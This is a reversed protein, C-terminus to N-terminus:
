FHIGLARDRAIRSGHVAGASRLSDYSPFFEDTVNFSYYTNEIHFERLLEGIVRLSKIHSIEGRIQSAISVAPQILARVTERDMIVSPGSIVVSQLAYRYLQNRYGHFKAAEIAANMISQYYLTDEPHSNIAQVAANYILVCEMPKKGSEQELGRYLDATNQISARSADLTPVIQWDAAGFAALRAQDEAMQTYLEANAREIETPRTLFQNTLYEIQETESAREFIFMGFPAEAILVSSVFLSILIKKLKM